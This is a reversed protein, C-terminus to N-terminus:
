LSIEKLLFPIIDIVEDALSTAHSPYSNTTLIRGYRLRLSRATGSFVGHSVYLHLRSPPLGTAGALGIFTGGGDCIDDVVLLTGSEPLPECTFNSLKGTEFDRKKLAQYVPVGLAEAVGQAREFAGRDPAIVGTYKPGVFQGAIDAPRLYSMGPMFGVVASSHPDFTVLHDARMSEILRAYVLGGLPKGRDQRAGPFYPILAAVKHGKRHQLDIWMAASIYDNADTGHIAVALPREDDAAGEKTHREGAPFAMPRDGSHIVDGDPSTAYFSIM